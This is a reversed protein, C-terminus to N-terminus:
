GAKQAKKKKQKGKFHVFKRPSQVELLVEDPEDINEGKYVRYLFMGEGVALRGIKAEMDMAYHTLEEAWDLHLADFPEPPNRKPDMKNPNFPDWMTGPPVYINYTREVENGEADKTKFRRKAWLAGRKRTNIGRTARNHVKQKAAQAETKQKKKAQKGM